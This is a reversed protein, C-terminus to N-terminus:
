ARYVAHLLKAYRVPLVREKHCDECCVGKEVVPEANHMEKSPFKHGCFCCTEVTDAM